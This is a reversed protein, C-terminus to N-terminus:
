GAKVEIRRPKVADAKPLHVVLVGDSLEASIKATDIEQGITFARYFDGVGYEAYLYREDRQRPRVKGHITLERNEFQIDLSDRTVGPLDGYLTLEDDKEVIDIRPTYTVGNRTREVQTSDSSSKKAMATEM